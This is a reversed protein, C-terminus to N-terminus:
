IKLIVEMVRVENLCVNRDHGWLETLLTLVSETRTHMHGKPVSPWHSCEQKMPINRLVCNM